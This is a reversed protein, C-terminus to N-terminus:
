AQILNIIFDEQNWTWLSWGPLTELARGLLKEVTNPLTRLQKLRLIEIASNASIVQSVIAM